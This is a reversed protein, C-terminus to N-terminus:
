SRHDPEGSPTEWRDKDENWWVEGDQTKNYKPGGATATIELTEMTANEWTKKMTIM